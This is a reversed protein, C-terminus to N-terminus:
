DKRQYPQDQDVFFGSSDVETMNYEDLTKGDLPKTAAYMAKTRAESFSSAEVTVDYYVRQYVRVRYKTM